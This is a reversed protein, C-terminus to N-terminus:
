VDRASLVILAAAIVVATFGTLLLFSPWAGLSGVAAASADSSQSM